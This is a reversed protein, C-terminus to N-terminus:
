PALKHPPRDRHPSRPALCRKLYPACRQKAEVKSASVQALVDNRYANCEVLRQRVDRRRATYTNIARWVECDQAYVTTFHPEYYVKKKCIEPCIVTEQLGKAVPEAKLELGVPLMLALLLDDGATAAPTDDLPVEHVRSEATISREPNSCHRVTPEFPCVHEM